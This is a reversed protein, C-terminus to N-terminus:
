VKMLMLEFARSAIIPSYREDVKTRCLLVFSSSATLVPMSTEHETTSRLYGYVLRSEVIQGHDANIYESRNIM